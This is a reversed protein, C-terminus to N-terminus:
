PLDEAARLAEAEEECAECPEDADYIGDDASGLVPDDDLQEGAHQVRTCFACIYPKYGTNSDDSLQKLACDRCLPVDVACVKCPLTFPNRSVLAGCEDCHSNDEILDNM